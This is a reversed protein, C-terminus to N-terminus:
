VIQKANEPEDVSGLGRLAHGFSITAGPTQVANPVTPSNHDPDTAPVADQPNLNPRCGPRTIKAGKLCSSETTPRSCQIWFCCDANCISHDTSLDPDSAGAQGSHTRDPETPRSSQLSDSANVDPKAPTVPIVALMAPCHVPVEDARPTFLEHLKSAPTHPRPSLAVLGHATIFHEAFAPEFCRAIIRNMWPMPTSEACRQCFVVAGYVWVVQGILDALCIPCLVPREGPISFTLLNM